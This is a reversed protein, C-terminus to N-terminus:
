EWLVRCIEQMEECQRKGNPSKKKKKHREIKKKKWRTKKKKEEGEETRGRGATDYFLPEWEEEKDYIEKRVKESVYVELGLGGVGRVPVRM